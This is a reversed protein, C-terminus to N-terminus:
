ELLTQPPPQSQVIKVAEEFSEVEETKYGFEIAPDKTAYSIKGRYASVVKLDPYYLNGYNATGFFISVDLHNADFPYVQLYKRVPENQNIDELIEQICDVIVARAEIKDMSRNLQYTVGMLKVCGMMGGSVGCFRLSHKEALRKSAKIMINRAIVDYPFPESAQMQIGTLPSLCIFAM